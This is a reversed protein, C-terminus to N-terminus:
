EIGFQQAANKLLQGKQRHKLMTDDGDKLHWDSNEDKLFHYGALILQREVNAAWTEM